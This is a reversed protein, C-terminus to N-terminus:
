RQPSQPPLVMGSAAQWRGTPPALVRHADYGRDALPYEANIGDTLAEAPTRDAVKEATVAMPVPM